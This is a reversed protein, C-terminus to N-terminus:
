TRWIHRCSGKKTLNWHSSILIKHIWAIKQVAQRSLFPVINTLTLNGYVFGQELPYALCNIDDMHDVYHFLWPNTSWLRSQYISFCKFKFIISGERALLYQHANMARCSLLFYQKVMVATYCFTWLGLCLISVEFLVISKIRKMLLVTSKYVVCHINCWTCSSLLLFYLVALIVSLFAFLASAHAKFDHCSYQNQVFSLAIYHCTLLTQHLCLIYTWLILQYHIPILLDPAGMCCSDSDTHTIFLSVWRFCSYTM